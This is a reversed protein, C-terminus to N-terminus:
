RPVRILHDAELREPEGLGSARALLRLEGMSYLRLRRDGPGIEWAEEDVAAGSRLAIVPEGAEWVMQIAEGTDPDSAVGEQWNGQAVEAWLGEPLDDILFVGAEGLLTRVSAFLELAMIPDAVEVLTNGLCLVADFREGAAALRAAVEVLEGEHAEVSGEMSDGVGAKGDEFAGALAALAAGDHDVGVVRCGRRALPLAIRGDGCGLDLVRAGDDILRGLGALQAEHEADELPFWDDSRDSM